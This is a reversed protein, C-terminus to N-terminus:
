RKSRKYRENYSLQKNLLPHQIVDHILEAGHDHCKRSLISVVVSPLFEKMQKLVRHSPQGFSRPRSLPVRFHSPSDGATLEVPPPGLSPSLLVLLEDSRAKREDATADRPEDEFITEQLLKVLLAMRKPVLAKKTLVDDLLSEVADQTTHRLLPALAKLLTTVWVETNFVSSTLYILYDFVPWPSAPIEPAGIMRRCFSYNNANDGFLPNSKLPQDPQKTPTGEKSAANASKPKIPETSALFTQLFEELHQGKERVLKRPVNRIMKGLKVDPLFSGTFENNMKLFNYVLQSGRLGPLTLLEQIYREFASLHEELTKRKRTGFSRKTPLPQIPLEGHFEELKAELVYFETYKRGVVWHLDEPRQDGKVDIRQIDIVFFCGDRNENGAVRPISVRWASLDKLRPDDHMSFAAQEFQTPEDEAEPNEVGEVTAWFTANGVKTASANPKVAQSISKPVEVTYHNSVNSEREKCAVAFYRESRRFQPLLIKDLLHYVDEYTEYLVTSTRLKLINEKPQQIISLFEAAKNVDMPVRDMAEESIFRHYINAALQHLHEIQAANIDPPLLKSNFHELAEYFWLLHQCGEDKLHQAFGSYLEKNKLTTQLDFDDRNSYRVTPANQNVFHSLLEVSKKSKPFVQMPTKDFFILLILNIIDPDAIVDMGNLFVPGCLIERILAFACQSHYYKGPILQTLMKETVKRLYQHETARNKLVVHMSPGLCSLVLKEIDKDDPYLRRARVYVDLHQAIIHIVKSTILQVLNVREVRKILASIVHRLIIRLEQVFIEDSSLQSYWPYVYEQLVKNLIDEIASDVEQSVILGRWPCINYLKTHIECDSVKCRRCEFRGSVALNVKPMIRPWLSIIQKHRKRADVIYLGGAAFASLVIFGSLKGFLLATVLTVIILSALVTSLFKDNFVMLFYSAEAAAAVGGRSPRHRPASRSAM